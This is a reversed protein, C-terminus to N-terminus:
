KLGRYYFTLWWLGPIGIISGLVFDFPMLCLGIILILLAIYVKMIENM